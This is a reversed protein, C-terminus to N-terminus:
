VNHISHGCCVDISRAMVTIEACDPILFSRNLLPIHVDLLGSFSSPRSLIYQGVCESALNRDAPTSLNEEQFIVGCVDYEDLGRSRVADSNFTIVKPLDLTFFFSLVEKIAHLILHRGVVSAGHLSRLLQPFYKEVSGAVVGGLAFAAANRIKEDSDGMEQFLGEM